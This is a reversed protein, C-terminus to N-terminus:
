RAQFTPTTQFPAQGSRLLVLAMPSNEKIVWGQDVLAEVDRDRLPMDSSEIGRGPHFAVIM